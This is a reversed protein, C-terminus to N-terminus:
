IIESFTSYHDYTIFILGDSSFLIRDNGRWGWKYNIDAEYWIRGAASPLRGDKNQYIGKTIMKRPAVDNLNGLVPKWGASLADQETIYYDPLKRYQKLWWDAGDLGNKTATGALLAKLREIICRCRMHIPPEPRVKEDIAYIKGNQRRCISCTRLDIVTVWTKWNKSYTTM